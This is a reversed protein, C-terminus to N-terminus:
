PTKAVQINYTTQEFSPRGLPPPDRAGWSGGRAVGRCDSLVLFEEDDNNSTRSLFYLIKCPKLLRWESFAKNRVFM